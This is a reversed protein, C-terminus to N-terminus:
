PGEPKLPQTNDYLELINEKKLDKVEDALLSFVRQATDRMLEIQGYSSVGKGAFIMQSLTSKFVTDDLKKIIDAQDDLNIQDLFRKLNPALEVLYPKLENNDFCIIPENEEFFNFLVNLQRLHMNLRISEEFKGAHIFDITEVKILKTNEALSILEDDDKPFILCSTGNPNLLKKEDVLVTGNPTDKPILCSLSQGDSSSSLVSHLDNNKLYNIVKLSINNEISENKIIDITYPKEMLAIEKNIFDLKTNSDVHTLSQNGQQDMILVAVCGTLGFTALFVDTETAANKRVTENQAAIIIKM